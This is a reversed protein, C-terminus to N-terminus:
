FANKSSKNEHDFPFKRSQVRNDEWPSPTRGGPDKGERDLAPEPINSTQGRADAQLIECTMEFGTASLLFIKLKSLM